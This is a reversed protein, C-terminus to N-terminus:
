SSEQKSVDIEIQGETGDIVTKFESCLEIFKKRVWEYDTNYQSPDLREARFKRIRNPFVELKVPELKPQGGGESAPTEKLTVNWAASLDNRYGATVAYDDVFDGCGYIILKGKYVEVGQVHHSSHGHIIDIGCEDILFHAMSVIRDEPHWAYNPGWHLSIIKLSPSLSLGPWSKTLLERLRSRSSSGYQFLNFEPVTSWDSPHDSFSYLHIEHKNGSEQPKEKEEGQLSVSSSRPLTLVAPREAEEVTEGAGAFAIGAEKMTRVTELLGTRSFDLTHNNALSVYNLGAEQLCRVNSPHMRYNFVKDPWKRSHTTASTELNGLVLDSHQFFPIWDGWPSSYDYDELHSHSKRFSAAHRADDREQVHKPLLQDILRGLMIDGLLTIKFTKEDTGTSAM